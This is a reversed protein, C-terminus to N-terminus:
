SGEKEATVTIPIEREEEVDNWDTISPTGKIVNGM